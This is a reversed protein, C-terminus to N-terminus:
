NSKVVKYTTVISGVTTEIFYIGNILESLDLDIQNSNLNTVNLSNLFINKGEIDRIQITQIIDKAKVTINKEFPNPFITIDSSNSQTTLSTVANNSVITSNLQVSTNEENEIKEISLLSTSICICKESALHETCIPIKLSEEDMWEAHSAVCTLPNLAIDGLYITSPLKPLCSIKNSGCALYELENPLVPLSAIENFNCYLIKLSSPLKPLKTLKNVACSLEELSSPLTPLASLQNMSCDLKVLGSPLQPLITLNNELCELSKLNVFAQIGELNEIQLGNLNLSETSRIIDCSSDLKNEIMCNPFNISLFNAFNKDNIMFSNQANGLFSVLVAIFVLKFM